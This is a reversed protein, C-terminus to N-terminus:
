GVGLSGSRTTRAAGSRMPRCCRCLASASRVLDVHLRATLRM